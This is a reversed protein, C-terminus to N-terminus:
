LGPCVDAEGALAIMGSLVNAIANAEGHTGVRRARIPAQTQDRDEAANSSACDRFWQSLVDLRELNERVEPRLGGIAARQNRRRLQAFSAALLCLAVPEATVVERADLEVVDSHDDGIRTVIRILGPLDDGLLLKPLKLMPRDPTLLVQTISAKVSLKRYGFAFVADVRLQV